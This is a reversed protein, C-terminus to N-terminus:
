NGKQAMSQKHATKQEAILQNLRGILTATEAKVAENGLLHTAFILDAIRQYAADTRPRVAKSAELDEAAKRNTLTDQIRRYKKNAEDLLAVTPTQALTAIHQANAPKNLDLLLGDTGSTQRDRAESQLGTYPKILLLLAEAAERVEAAPSLAAARIASFLYVTLADRESDASALQPTEIYSRAENNLEVELDINRKYETALEPSVNVKEFGFGNVMEYARSHFHAHQANVFRASNSGQIKKVEEM